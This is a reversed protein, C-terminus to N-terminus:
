PYIAHAQPTLDPPEHCEILEAATRLREAEAPPLHATLTRVFVTRTLPDVPWSTPAGDLEVTASAIDRALGRLSAFPAWAVVLRVRERIDPHAAALLSFSGGVCTGLLGSREPDIEPRAILWAYARAISGTDDPDLRLDRMAPSWWLLAAFGSRALARGLRAVQPHEVGFPVVGLCVVLGPHPGEGGPLYLDGEAEGTDTPYRVRRVVPDPTLWAVPRDPLMPLVSTLFVISRWWARLSRTRM